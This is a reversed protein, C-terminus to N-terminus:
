AAISIKSLALSKLSGPLDQRYQDQHGYYLAIPAM